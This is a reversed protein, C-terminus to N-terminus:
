VTLRVFEQFKEEEEIMINAKQFDGSRIDLVFGNKLFYM